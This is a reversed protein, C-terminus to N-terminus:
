CNALKCHASAIKNKKISKSFVEKSGTHMSRERLFNNSMIHPYSVTINSKNQRLTKEAGIKSQINIRGDKGTRKFEEVSKKHYLKRGDIVVYYIFGRKIRSDKSLAQKTKGLIISAENSSIFEGIPLSYIAESEKKQIYANIKKTEEFDISVDGCDRCKSYRISPVYITGLPRSKFSLGGIVISRNGNCLDCLM